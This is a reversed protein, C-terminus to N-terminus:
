GNCIINKSNEKTAYIDKQVQIACNGCLLISRTTIKSEEEVVILVASAREDLDSRCGYCIFNDKIRMSSREKKVRKM